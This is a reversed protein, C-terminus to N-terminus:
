TQLWDSIGESCFLEFDGSLIKLIDQPCLHTRCDITDGIHKVNYHFIGDNKEIPEMLETNTPPADYPLLVDTGKAPFM